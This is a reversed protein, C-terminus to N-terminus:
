NRWRMRSPVAVAVKVKDTGESVIRLLRQYDQWDFLSPDPKLNRGITKAQKRLVRKTQGESDDIELSLMRTENEPHLAARTTTVM